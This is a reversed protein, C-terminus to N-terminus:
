PRDSTPSSPAVDRVAVVLLLGGAMALNNFFEISEHLQREPAVTWFAHALLSAPLLFALLVAAGLRAHRPHLLLASGVVRLVLSAWLLAESRPLGMAVVEDLAHQWGSLHRGISAIFTSSLAARAVFALRRRGTASSTLPLTTM